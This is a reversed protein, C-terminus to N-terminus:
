RQGTCRMSATLCRVRIEAPLNLHRIILELWAKTRDNSNTSGKRSLGIRGISATVSRTAHAKAAGEGGKGLTQRSPLTLSTSTVAPRHHGLGQARSADSVVGRQELNKMRDQIGLLCRARKRLPPPRPRFEPAVAALSGSRWGCPEGSDVLMGNEINLKLTLEVVAVWPSLVDTVESTRFSLGCMVLTRGVRWSTAVDGSLCTYSATSVFGLTVM